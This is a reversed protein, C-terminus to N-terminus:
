TFVNERCTFTSRKEQFMHGPLMVTCIPRVMILCISWLLETSRLDIVLDVVMALPRRCM